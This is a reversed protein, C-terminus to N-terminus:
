AILLCFSRWLAWLQVYRCCPWNLLNPTTWATLYPSFFWTVLSGRLSVVCDNVADLSPRCFVNLEHWKHKLVVLFLPLFSLELSLPFYCVLFCAPRTFFAGHCVEGHVDENNQHHNEQGSVCFHVSAVWFSKLGCTQFRQASVQTPDEWIKSCSELPSGLIIQNSIIPQLYKKSWDKILCLNSCFWRVM